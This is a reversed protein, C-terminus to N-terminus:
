PAPVTSGNHAVGHCTLTCNGGVPDYSIPLGNYPLVDPAFVVLGRQATATGHLNIYDIESSKLGAMKLADQMALRAGLGDPHPSSIHYADSSEGIGLLLM